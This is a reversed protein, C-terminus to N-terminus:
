KKQGRVYFLTRDGFLYFGVASAFNDVAESPVGQIRTYGWVSLAAAAVFPRQLRVVAEVWLYSVNSGGAENMVKFKEIDMKQMSLWDNLSAPKFDAGIYKGILAKGADVLLPGFVAAISILDM